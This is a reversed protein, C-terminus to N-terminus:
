VEHIVSMYIYIYIYIVSQSDHHRSQAQAAEAQHGLQALARSRNLHLSGQLITEPARHLM